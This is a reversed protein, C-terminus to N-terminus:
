TPAGQSVELTFLFALYRRGEKSRLFSPSFAARLLLRKLDGISKDQFDLLELGKRIAHCRKVDAAKGVVLGM